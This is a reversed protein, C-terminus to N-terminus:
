VGTNLDTEGTSGAAVPFGLYVSTFRSSMVAGRARTFARPRMGHKRPSPKGRNVSCVTGVSGCVVAVRLVIRAVM